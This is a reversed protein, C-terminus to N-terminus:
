RSWLYLINQEYTKLLRLNQTQKRLFQYELVKFTTLHQVFKSKLLTVAIYVWSALGFCLAWRDM